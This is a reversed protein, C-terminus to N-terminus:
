FDEQEEPVYEDTETMLGTQASYDLYMSQGTARGTYRDKICRVRLQNKVVPDESMMDRELGWIYSAWKEIASSGHLSEM